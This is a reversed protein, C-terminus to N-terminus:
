MRLEAQMLTRKLPNLVLGMEEITLVGMLLSDDVEGFIVQTPVTKDKYTALAFGVDRYEIWGDAFRITM